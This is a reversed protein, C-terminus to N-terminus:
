DITYSITVTVATVTGNIASAVLVIHRDAPVTADNFSTTSAGDADAALDATMIDTGGATNVNTRQELNFTLSTGGFAAGSVKTVTIAYPFFDCPWVDDVVPTGLVYTKHHTDAKKVFATDTYSSSVLKKNADTLVLKSATLSSDTVDTVTTAGAGLTQSGLNVAKTAGTYPVFTNKIYGIGWPIDNLTDALCSIPLLIFLLIIFFKKM